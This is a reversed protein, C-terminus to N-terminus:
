WEAPPAENLGDRLVLHAEVVDIGEAAGNCVLEELGGLRLDVELLRPLLSPVAGEVSSSFLVTLSVAEVLLAPLPPPTATSPPHEVVVTAL